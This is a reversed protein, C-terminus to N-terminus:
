IEPVIVVICKAYKVVYTSVSGIMRLWGHRTSKTMFIIDTYHEEAYNLIEEGAKGTLLECNVDYGKLEDAAKLLIPMAEEEAAEFKEESIIEDMDESVMILDIKVTGPQYLTKVLEISKLSRESGDIPLLLQKIKM